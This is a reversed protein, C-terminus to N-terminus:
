EERTEEWTDRELSPEQRNNLRKRVAAEFGSSMVKLTELSFSPRRTRAEFVGTAPMWGCLPFGREIDSVVEVDPYGLETLIERMLLLRKNSLLQQLHQKKIVEVRQRAVEYPPLIFNANVAAQVVESTIRQLDRPHGAAVARAVFETPTSPAGIVCVERRQRHLGSAKTHSSTVRIPYGVEQLVLVDRSSLKHRDRIHYGVLVLRSGQWPMTRHCRSSDFGCPGSAVDVLTVGNLGSSDTGPATDDGQM